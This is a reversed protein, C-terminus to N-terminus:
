RVFVDESSIDLLRCLRRFKRRTKFVRLPGVHYYLWAFNVAGLGDILVLESRDRVVLNKPHLDGVVLGRQILEHYFARVLSTISEKGLEKECNRLTPSITQDSNRVLDFLYGAGLTTEVRGRFLAVIPCREGRALVKRHAQLEEEVREESAEDETFEVKVCLDPKGPVEYCARQGGKAFYSEQVLEIM